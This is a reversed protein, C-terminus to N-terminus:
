KADVRKSDIRIHSWTKGSKIHKINVNSVGFQFGLERDTFCGQEALIKIMLVQKETLRSDPNREGSQGKKLGTMYAHRMNESPTVLELNEIRNDSKIGNKHNIQMDPKLNEIGHHFAWVLRHATITIKEGNKTGNIQIYGKSTVRGARKFPKKTRSNGVRVLEGERFTLEGDEIKKVFFSVHEDKITIGM